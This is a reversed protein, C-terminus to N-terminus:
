PAAGVPTRLAPEPHRPRPAALLEACIRDLTEDHEDITTEARLALEHVHAPRADDAAEDGRELGTQLRHYRLDGRGGPLLRRPEPDTPGPLGPHRRRGTGLSVLLVSAPEGPDARAAEALAWVAPDNAFVAGDVLSRWGRRDAAQVRAPAVRGPTATAAKAVDRMRFDSGPRSRADSASFLFPRRREADWATVLVGTLAESLWTAGFREALLLEAARQPWRQGGPGAGPYLEQLLPCAFTGRGEHRDLRILEAASREPRGGPGPRTLALALLGGTSTGAVLDFLDATNRGTRQELEAVLMAPVIGRVGGGDISLVKVVRAM